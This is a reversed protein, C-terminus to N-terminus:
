NFHKPTLYNLVGNNSHSNSATSRVWSPFLALPFVIRPLFANMDLDLENVTVFTESNRFPTHSPPLDYIDDISRTTLWFM